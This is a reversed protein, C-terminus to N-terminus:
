IITENGGAIASVYDAQLHLLGDLDAAANINELKAAPGNKRNGYATEARTAASTLTELSVAPTPFYPNDTMKQVVNHTLAAMNLASKKIWTMLVVIIKAM